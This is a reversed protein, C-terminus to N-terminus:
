AAKSRSTKRASKKAAKGATKQKRRTTKRTSTANDNSSHPASSEGGGKVSRKLADMLNIVNSAAPTEEIARPPRKEEKARILERLAVTYSDKFKEPHFAGAKKGILEEALAVLDTDVKKAPV